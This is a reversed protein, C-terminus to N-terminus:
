GQRTEDHAQDRAPQPSAARDRLFKVMARVASVDDDVQESLFYDLWTQEGWAEAAENLADRRAKADHARLLPLLADAREYYVAPIADTWWVKGDAECLTRAIQDRLATDDPADPHGAPPATPSGEDSTTPAASTSRAESPPFAGGAPTNADATSAAPDADLIRRMAEVAGHLVLGVLPAGNHGSEDWGDADRDLDALKAELRERLGSM